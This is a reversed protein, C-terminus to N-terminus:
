MDPHDVFLYYFQHSNLEIHGEEGDSEDSTRLSTNLDTGEPNRNLDNKKPTKMPSIKPLQDVTEVIQSISILM